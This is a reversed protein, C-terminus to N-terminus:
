PGTVEGPLPVYRKERKKRKPKEPAHGLLKDFEAEHKRRADDFV